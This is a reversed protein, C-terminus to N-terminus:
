KSFAAPHIFSVQLCEGRVQLSQPDHRASRKFRRIFVNILDGTLTVYGKGSEYIPGSPLTWRPESCLAGIPQHSFLQSFRCWAFFIPPTIPLRVDLVYGLNRAGALLKVVIVNNTPDPLDNIKHFYTLASVNSVIITTAAGGPHRHAVFLRIMAVPIPLSLYTGLSQLFTVLKGWARQYHDLTSPPLSAQLLLSLSEGLGSRLYQLSNRAPSSRFQQVQSRSLKDAITNIRGPIHRATLNINFRLCALVLPLILAM